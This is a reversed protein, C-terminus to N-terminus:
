SPCDSKNALDRAYIHAREELTQMYRRFIPYFWEEMCEIDQPLDLEEEKGVGDRVAYISLHGKPELYLITGKNTWQIDKIDMWGQIVTLNKGDIHCDTIELM